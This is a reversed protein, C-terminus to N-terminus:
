QRTSGSTPKWIRTWKGTLWQWSLGTMVTAAKAFNWRNIWRRSPPRGTALATSPWASRTGTIGKRPRWSSPKRPWSLRGRQIASSSTLFNAFTWALGNQVAPSEPDLKAAEEAWRVAGARDKLRLLVEVLSRYHNGLYERYGPNRPDAKVATKQCEVARELLRRAEETEGPDDLLRGLNNLTAGLRSQYEVNQPFEDALKEELDLAQRYAEEAPERQRLAKLLGAQNYYSQALQERYQPKTPAQALLKKMTYQHELWTEEAQQGKGVMEQAIALENLLSALEFLYTPRLPFEAALSRRSEAAAHFHQEAEDLRSEETLHLGFNTHSRALDLRYIPDAQYATALAEKLAISKRYADEGEQRQGMQALLRGLSMYDRGLGQRYTPNDPSDSLLQNLLGISQDLAQKAKPHDRLARYIDGIEGYATAMQFTVAPNDRNLELFRQYFALMRELFERRKPESNEDGVLWDGAMDRYTDHLVQLALDTNGEARDRQRGANLAENEARTQAQAARIAQWISVGTGLVMAASVLAATTLVVRNRRSFKRFRYWASPPCAEVSEDDLYRQVDAALASVTEYRRNRDKELCKMVIWDLEGRVLKTLKAPSTKRQASISALAEGSDSLRTSPKPAEEEKIMRLVEGYAAERVRKNTLPTSGTLLEYLLVGLSYIDSRTDAGLASMEAQEPSMYELTGVMTGYQTFLTRETLKQEIAKAVGFDIVKSVPKGDYLCVLM